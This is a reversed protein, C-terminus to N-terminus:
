TVMWQRGDLIEAAADLHGAHTATEKIMHLMSYRLDPFDVPM